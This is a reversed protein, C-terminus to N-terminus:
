GKLTTLIINQRRMETEFDNLDLTDDYILKERHFKGASYASVVTSDSDADHTVIALSKATDSAGVPAYKGGVEGALITGRILATGSEVKVNIIEVNEEPGALLNDGECTEVSYTYKMEIRREIVISDDKAM